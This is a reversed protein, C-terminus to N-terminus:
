EWGDALKRQDNRQQLTLEQGDTELQLYYKTMECSDAVIKAM